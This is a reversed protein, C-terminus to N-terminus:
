KLILGSSTPTNATQSVGGTANKAQIIGGNFVTIDQASDEGGKRANVSIACLFGGIVQIGYGTCGSCNSGEISASGNLVACGGNGGTLVAAVASIAGGYAAYINATNCNKFGKQPLILSSSGAGSAVLGYRGGGTGSTDMSFTANIIPSRGGLTAVFAGYITDNFSGGTNISLASRAITVEADVSTITVWSMDIGTCIVQEAMVFGTLLSVTARIGTNAYLPYKESLAALAENITAYDGGDGVTVTINEKLQEISDGGGGGGAAWSPVGSSLTLVHGDTGAQLRTAAGSTGGIIIDGAATMPNEFGGGGGGDIAAAPIAGDEFALFDSSLLERVISVM